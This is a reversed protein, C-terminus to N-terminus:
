NKKSMQITMIVWVTSYPTLFCGLVRVKLRKHTYKLTKKEFCRVFHLSRRSRRPNPTTLLSSTLIPITIPYEQNLSLMTDTDVFNYELEEVTYDEQEVISNLWLVLDEEPLSLFKNHNFRILNKKCIYFLSFFM